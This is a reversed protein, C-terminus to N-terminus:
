LSCFCCPVPRRRDEANKGSFIRTFNASLLSLDLKDSIFMLNKKLNIFNEIFDSFNQVRLLTWCCNGSKARQWAQLKGITDLGLRM